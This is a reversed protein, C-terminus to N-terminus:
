PNSAVKRKEENSNQAEPARSKRATNGEGHDKRGM